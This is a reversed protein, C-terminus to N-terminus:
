SGLRLAIDGTGVSTQLLLYTFFDTTINFAGNVTTNAYPVYTSNSWYNSINTIDLISSRVLANAPNNYLAHSVLLYQHNDSASLYSSSWFSGGNHLQM